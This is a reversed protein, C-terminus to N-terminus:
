LLTDAYNRLVKSHKHWQPILKFIKTAASIPRNAWCYSMTADNWKKILVLQFVTQAVSAVNPVNGIECDQRTSIVRWSHLHLHLLWTELTISNKFQQWPPVSAETQEPILNFLLSVKVTFTLKAYHTLL